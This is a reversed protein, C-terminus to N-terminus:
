ERTCERQEKRCIGSLEAPRIERKERGWSGSNRGGRAWTSRKGKEREYSCWEWAWLRRWRRRWWRSRRCLGSTLALRGGPTWRPWAFRRPSAKPWRRARRAWRGGRFPWPSARPPTGRRRYPIQHALSPNYGEVFFIHRSLAGLLGRRQEAGEAKIQIIMHLRTLREQM